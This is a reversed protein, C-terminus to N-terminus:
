NITINRYAFEIFEDAFYDAATYDDHDASIVNDQDAVSVSDTVYKDVTKAPGADAIAVSDVFPKDVVREISDSLVSSDTLVKDATKAIYELLPVLDSLAKTVTLAVADSMVIGDYVPKTVEKSVLDNFDLVDFLYMTDISMTRDTEIIASVDFLFEKRLNAFWKMGAPHVLELTQRYEKQDHETEILYSFQQYFDNDQLCIQKNSILGFEDLYYGRMKTLNSHELFFTARSDLWQEITFENEFENDVFPSVSTHTAFVATGTYVEEVYDEAFYPNLGVASSVGAVSDEFGTLYDRAVLRHEYVFPNVATLNKEYETGAGVPRHPFPSIISIQNQLHDYGFDIIELARIEGGPGIRTVRAITNKISGPISVIQGLQWYKGGDVISIHSVSPTITGAYIVVYNLDDIYYAQGSEPQIPRNKSFFFRTQTPSIVEIRDIDYTYIGSTTEFRMVFPAPPVSGFATDLTFYYEQHWRGDSARLVYKGPYDVFVEENFLLRFLFKLSKETGKSAYFEKANRIFERLQMNTFEPFGIAYQNRYHELFVADTEDLDLVGQLNGAYTTDLYKYYEEVFVVFSGFEERFFEPFQRAVNLHKTNNM